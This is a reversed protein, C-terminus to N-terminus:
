PEPSNAPAELAVLRGQEMELPPGAILTASNVSPFSISKEEVSALLQYRYLQLCKPSKMKM